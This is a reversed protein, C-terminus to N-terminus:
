LDDVDQCVKALARLHKMDVSFRPRPRDALNRPRAISEVKVSEVKVSEVKVVLNVDEVKVKATGSKPSTIAAAPEEREAGLSLSIVKAEAKIDPRGPSNVQVPECEVKAESVVGCGVKAEPAELKPSFVVDEDVVPRRRRKRRADKEEDTDYDENARVLRGSELPNRGGMGDMGSVGARDTTGRPLMAKIEAMSVRPLGGARALQDASNAKRGAGIRSEPQSDERGDIDPLLQVGASQLEKLRKIYGAGFKPSSAFWQDREAVCTDYGGKALCDRFLEPLLFYDLGLAEHIM